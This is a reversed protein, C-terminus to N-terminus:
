TSALISYLELDTFHDNIWEADRLTAEKTFGLKLPIAISKENGKAVAVEIRHLSLTEFGYKILIRCATTTYGKGQHEEDIWYGIIAKKNRKDIWNFSILGLMKNEAWITFYLGTQQSHQLLAKQVFEATHEPANTEDVWNLWIRLHMRNKVVLHFLSESDSQTLPSLTVGNENLTPIATPFAM